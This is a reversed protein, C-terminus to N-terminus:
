LPSGMQAPLEQPCTSWAPPHPWLVSVTGKTNTLPRTGCMKECHPCCCDWLSLCFYHHFLINNWAMLDKRLSTLSNSCECHQRLLLKCSHQGYLRIRQGPSVEAKVRPNFLGALVAYCCKGKEAEMHNSEHLLGEQWLLPVWLSATCLQVLLLSQGQLSCPPTQSSSERAQCARIKLVLLQPWYKVSWDQTLHLTPSKNWEHSKQLKGVNCLSTPKHEQPICMTGETGKTSTATSTTKHQFLGWESGQLNYLYGNILPENAQVRYEAVTQPTRPM